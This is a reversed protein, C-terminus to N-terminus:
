QGPELTANWVAVLDYRQPVAHPATGDVKVMVFGDHVSDVVGGLLVRDGVEAQRAAGDEGTM